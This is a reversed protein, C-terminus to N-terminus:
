SVKELLLDYAAKNPEALDDRRIVSLLQAALKEEGRIYASMAAVLNADQEVMNGVSNVLEEAEKQSATLTQNEEKLTANEQKLRNNESQINTLTSQNMNIEQNNEAMQKHIRSTIMYSGGILGSIVIVFVTTYLVLFKIDKKVEAPSPADKPAKEKKVKEKKPKKEKKKKEPKPEKPEEAPEENVPEEKAPEEAPIEKKPAEEVSPEEKPAEPVPEQKKAPTQAPTSLGSANWLEDLRSKEEKNM